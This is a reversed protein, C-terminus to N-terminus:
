RFEVNDRKTQLVFDNSYLSITGRESVLDHRGCWLSHFSFDRKIKNLKWISSLYSFNNWALFFFFLRMGQNKIGDRHSFTCFSCWLLYYYNRFSIQITQNVLLLSRHRFLEHCRYCRVFKTFAFRVCACVFSIYVLAPAFSFQHFFIGFFFSFFLALKGDSHIRTHMISIRKARDICAALCVRCLTMLWCVKEREREIGTHNRKEQM